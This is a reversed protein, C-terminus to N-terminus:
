RIAQSIKWVFLILYEYAIAHRPSALLDVKM